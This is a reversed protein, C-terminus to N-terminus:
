NSLNSNGENILLFKYNYYDDHFCTDNPDFEIKELEKFFEKAKNIRNQVSMFNKTRIYNTQHFCQLNMSTRLGLPEIFLKEFFRGPIHRLFYRLTKKIKKYVIDLQPQIIESHEWHIFDSAIEMRIKTSLRDSKLQANIINTWPVMLSEIDIISKLLDSDYKCIEVLEQISLKSKVQYKVFNMSFILLTVMRQNIERLNEGWLELDKSLNLKKFKKFRNKLIDVMHSSRDIGLTLHSVGLGFLFNYNSEIYMKKLLHSRLKMDTNNGVLSAANNLIIKLDKYIQFHEIGLKYKIDKNLYVKFNDVTAFYHSVKSTSELVHESQSYAWFFGALFKMRQDLDGWNKVGVDIFNNGSIVETPINFSRFIDLTEKLKLKKLNDKIRITSIPKTLDVKIIVNRGLSIAGEKTALKTYIKKIKRSRLKIKFVKDLLHNIRIQEANVHKISALLVLEKKKNMDVTYKANYYLEFANLLLYEHELSPKFKDKFTDFDRKTGNCFLRLFENGIPIMEMAILANTGAFIEQQQNKGPIVRIATAFSFLTKKIKGLTKFKEGSIVKGASKSAWAAFNFWNAMVGEIELCANLEKAQIDYIENIYHNREIPNTDISLRNQDVEDVIGSFSPFSARLDSPLKLSEKRAWDNYRVDNGYIINTGFIFLLIIFLKM